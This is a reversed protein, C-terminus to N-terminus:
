SNTQSLGGGHRHQAERERLYRRPVEPYGEAERVDVAPHARSNRIM